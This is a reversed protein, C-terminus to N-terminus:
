RLDYERFSVGTPLPGEWADRKSLLQSSGIPQPSSAVLIADLAGVSIWQVLVEPQGDMRPAILSGLPVLANNEVGFAYAYRRRDFRVDIRVEGSRTPADCPREAAGATDRCQLEVAIPAAPTEPEPPTEEASVPLPEGRRIGEAALVPECLRKEGQYGRGLLEFRHAPMEIPFSDSDRVREFLSKRGDLAKTTSLLYIDAADSVADCYRSALIERFVRNEDEVGVSQVISSASCPRDGNVPNNCVQQLADDVIEFAQALLGAEQRAPITTIAGRSLMGLAARYTGLRMGLNGFHRQDLIRVLESQVADSMPEITAPEDGSGAMGRARMPSSEKVVPLSVVSVIRAYARTAESVVPARRRADNAYRFVEASPRWGPQGTWRSKDLPFVCAGADSTDLYARNMLCLGLEALRRGALQRARLVREDSEWSALKEFGRPSDIIEVANVLTAIARLRVHPDETWLSANILKDAPRGVMSEDFDGDAWPLTSKDVRSSLLGLWNAQAERMEFYGCINLSDYASIERLVDDVRALNGLASDLGDRPQNLAVPWDLKLEQEKLRRLVTLYDAVGVGLSNRLSGTPPGRWGQCIRHAHRGILQLRDKLKLEAAKDHLPKSLSKALEIRVRGSQAPARWLRVERNLSDRLRDFLQEIEPDTSRATRDDAAADLRAVLVGTLADTRILAHPFESYGLTRELKERDDILERLLMESWLYHEAWSLYNPTSNAEIRPDGAADSVRVWTFDDRGSGLGLAARVPFNDNHLYFAEVVDRMKVLLRIVREAPVLDADHCQKLSDMLIMVQNVNGRTPAERADSLAHEVQEDVTLRCVDPSVPMAGCGLLGTGLLVMPTIQRM